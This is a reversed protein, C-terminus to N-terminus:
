ELKQSFNNAFTSLSTRRDVVVNELSYENPLEQRSRSSKCVKAGTPSLFNLWFEDFVMLIKM